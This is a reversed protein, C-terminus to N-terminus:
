VSLSFVGFYSIRQWGDTRKFLTQRDRGNRRAKGFLIRMVYEFYLFARQSLSRRSANARAAINLYTIQVYLYSM